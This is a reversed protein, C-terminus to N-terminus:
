EIPDISYIRYRGWATVPVTVYNTTTNVTVNLTSIKGDIILTGNSPRNTSIIGMGANGNFNGFLYYAPKYDTSTKFTITGSGTTDLLYKCYFKIGSM